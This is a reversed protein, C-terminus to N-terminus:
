RTYYIGRGVGAKKVKGEAELKDLMRWCTAHSVRLAAAIEKNGLEGKEGLLSLIKDEGTVAFEKKEQKMSYIKKSAKSGFLVALVQLCTKTLDAPLSFEAWISKVVVAVLFFGFWSYVFISGWRSPEEGGMWRRVEKDGAYAALLAIYVLMVEGPAKFSGKTVFEAVNLGFYVLTFITTLPFLVSSEKFTKKIQEEMPANYLM